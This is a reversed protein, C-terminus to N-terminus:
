ARSRLEERIMKVVDRTSTDIYGEALELAKVLKQSHTSKLYARRASFTTFRTVFDTVFPPPEIERLTVLTEM